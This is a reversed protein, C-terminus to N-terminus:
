PGKWCGDADQHITVSEIGKRAEKKRSTEVGFREDRDKVKEWPVQIKILMVNQSVIKHHGQLISSFKALSVQEEKTFSMMLEPKGLPLTEGRDVQWFHYTKGYLGIVEKMEETEAIEWVACPVNPNPMILMGSKVQPLNYGDGNNQL